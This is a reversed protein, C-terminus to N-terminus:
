KQEQKSEEETDPTPKEETKEKFTKLIEVHGCDKCVVGIVNKTKYPAIIHVLLAAFFLIISFKLCFAARIYDFSQTIIEHASEVSKIAERMCIFSFIAGFMSIFMLIATASDGCKEKQQIQNIIEINKSGCKPCKM